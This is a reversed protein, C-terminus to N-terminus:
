KTRKWYVVSWNIPIIADLIKRSERFDHVAQACAEIAGYDDIIIYGGISVKDYLTTLSDMTSEYLDGDLRIIALKKLPANKLTDKFWGKLFRVQEDLLGYRRFNGQVEELSVALWPVQYLDLGMDQPYTPPPVGQFSDACWVTRNTDGIAKLFARMFICHGGKWIGTEIFDGEIQHDTIDRMMSELSTLEHFDSMVQLNAHDTKLLEETTPRSWIDRIVPDKYISNTLCKKILDIYEQELAMLSGNLLLAICVTLMFHM